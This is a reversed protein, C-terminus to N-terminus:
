AVRRSERACALMRTAQRVLPLIARARENLSRSRAKISVQAAATFVAELVPVDAHERILTYLVRSPTRERKVLRERILGALALEASHPHVGAIRAVQRLGASGPQCVLARLVEIRAPSALLAGLKM